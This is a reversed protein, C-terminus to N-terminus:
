QENPVIKFGLAYIKNTLETVISTQPTSTLYDYVADGGCEGDDKACQELATQVVNHQQTSFLTSLNSPVSYLVQWKGSGILKRVESLAYPTSLTNGEPEVQLQCLGKAYDINQISYTQKDGQPITFVLGNRIEITTM